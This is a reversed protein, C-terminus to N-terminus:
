RRDLHAVAREERLVELPPLDRAALGARCTGCTGRAGCARCAGCAGCAGTSGSASSRLPREDPRVAADDRLRAADRQRRLGCGALVDQVEAAGDGAMRDDRRTGLRGVGGVLAALCGCPRAAASGFADGAGRRVVRVADENLRPGAGASQAVVREVDRDDALTM